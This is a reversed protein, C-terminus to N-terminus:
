CSLLTNKVCRSMDITKLKPPGVPKGEAAKEEQIALQAGGATSKKIVAEKRCFMSALKEMEEDRLSSIKANGSINGWISHKLESASMGIPEWHLPILKPGEQKPIVSEPMKEVKDSKIGLM